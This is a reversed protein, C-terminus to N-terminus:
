LKRKIKFGLNDLLTLLADAPNGNTADHDAKDLENIIFVLNSSHAESYAEM